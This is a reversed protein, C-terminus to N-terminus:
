CWAPLGVGAPRGEEQPAWVELWRGRGAGTGPVAVPLHMFNVFM